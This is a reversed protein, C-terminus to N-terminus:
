QGMERVLVLCFALAFRLGWYVILFGLVVKMVMFIKYEFDPDM